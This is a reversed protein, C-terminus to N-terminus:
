QRTYTLRMTRIENGGEQVEFFESIQTGETEPHIVVKMHKITGSMADSNKGEFTMVGDDAASGKLMWIGTSMSDIWTSWYEGTVNDYGTQGIGTFPMGEMSASVDEQLIRGGNTMSRTATGEAHGPETNPAMWTEFALKFSGVGEAMEQHPAGPTAAKFFAVMEPPMVMAADDQAVAPGAVAATWCFGAVVVMMMRKMASM